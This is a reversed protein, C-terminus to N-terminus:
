NIENHKNFMLIEENKFQRNIVKKWNKLNSHEDKKQNKEIIQIKLIKKDKDTM